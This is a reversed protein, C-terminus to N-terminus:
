AWNSNTRVRGFELRLRGRSTPDRRQHILRPRSAPLTAAWRPSGMGEDVAYSRPGRPRLDKGFIQGLKPKALRQLLDWFEDAPMDGLGRAESQHFQYDETEPSTGVWRTRGSIWWAASTSRGATGPWCNRGCRRRLM